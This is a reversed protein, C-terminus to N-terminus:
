HVSARDVASARGSPSGPPCRACGRSRRLRRARGRRRGGRRSARRRPASTASSRGGHERGLGHGTGVVRPANTPEIPAFATRGARTPSASRTPITRRWTGPELTTVIAAVITSSVAMSTANPAATITVTNSAPPREGRGASSGVQRPKGCMRNHEAHNGAHREHRDDEPNAYRSHASVTKARMASPKEITRDGRAKTARTREQFGAAQARRRPETYANQERKVNGCRGPCREGDNGGLRRLTLAAGAPCHRSVAPLSRCRARRCRCRQPGARTRHRCAPPSQLRPCRGRGAASTSTALRRSRRLASVATRMRRRGRAAVTLQRGNASGNLRCEPASGFVESTPVGSRACRVSLIGPLAHAGREDMELSMAM